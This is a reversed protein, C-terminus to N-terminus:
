KEHEVEVLLLGRSLVNLQLLRQHLCGVRDLLDPPFIELELVGPDFNVFTLLSVKFVKGEGERSTILAELEWSSKFM